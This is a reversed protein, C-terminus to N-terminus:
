YGKYKKLKIEIIHIDKMFNNIFGDWDIHRVVKCKITSITTKTGIYIYDRTQM